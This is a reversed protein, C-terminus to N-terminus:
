LLNFLFHRWIRFLCHISDGSNIYSISLFFFSSHFCWFGSGLTSFLTQKKETPPHILKKNTKKTFLVIFFCWLRFFRCTAVTHMNCIDWTICSFKHTQIWQTRVAFRDIWNWQIPLISPFFCNLLQQIYCISSLTLFNHPRM